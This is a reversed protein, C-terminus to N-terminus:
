QQALEGGLKDLLAQWGMKRFHPGDSGEFFAAQHTLRVICGADAPLFEASVLACSIRRENMEVVQSFVIRVDPKIEDYVSSWKLIAGAVPTSALMKGVLVERGGINFDLGYELVEYANSDAYWRKKKELEAFAAFVAATSVPCTSELTFTDHVIESQTMAMEM